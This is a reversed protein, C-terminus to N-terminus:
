FKTLRFIILEFFSKVCFKILNLNVLVVKGTIRKKHKIIKTYCEFNKFAYLSLFVNPINTHSKITEMSDKLLDFSILRFPVNIDKVYVGFFVFNILRLIRTLILRHLPDNRMQRHGIIFNYHKRKKWFSVFDSSHFQDDSDVQFIYKPKLKLAEKYGYTVAPGHGSNKKNILIIRKTIMSKIIEKTKDTSGDNIIIMKFNIKKLTKLWNTIVTKVIQEENFVPIVVILELKNKM